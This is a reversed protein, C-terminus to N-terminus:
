LCFKICIELAFISEMLVLVLFTHNKPFGNVTYCPYMITTIFCVILKVVNWIKYYHTDQRLTYKEQKSSPSQILESSQEVDGDKEIQSYKESLSQELYTHYLNDFMRHYKEPKM